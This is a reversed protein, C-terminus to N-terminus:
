AQILIVQVKIQGKEKPEFMSQGYELSNAVSHSVNHLFKPVLDGVIYVIYNPVGYCYLWGNM